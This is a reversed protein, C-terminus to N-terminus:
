GTNSSNDGNDDNVVGVGDGACCGDAGALNLNAATFVNGNSGADGTTISTDDGVNGNSTTGQSSPQSQSDETQAVLLSADEPNSDDEEHFPEEEEQFVNEEQPLSTEEPQKIEEEQFANTEEQFPESEEQFEAFVPSVGGLILHLALLIALIKRLNDM